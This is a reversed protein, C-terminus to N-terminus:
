DVEAIPSPAFSQSRSTTISTVKSPTRGRRKLQSEITEFRSPERKNKNTNKNKSGQPRGCINKCDLPDKYYQDDEQTNPTQDFPFKCTLVDQLHQLISTIEAM